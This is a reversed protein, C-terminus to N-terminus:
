PMNCAQRDRGLHRDAQRDTGSDTRRMCATVKMYCLAHRSVTSYFTSSNLCSCPFASTTAYLGAFTLVCGRMPLLFSMNLTGSMSTTLLFGTECKNCTPNLLSALTGVPCFAHHPFLFITTTFSLFLLSTLTHPITYTSRAHRAAM